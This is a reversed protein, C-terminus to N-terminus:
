VVTEPKISKAVLYMSVFATYSAIIAGEISALIWAVYINNVLYNFLLVFLTSIIAGAITLLILILLNKFYSKRNAAVLKAAKKWAFFTLIKGENAFLWMFANGWACLLIILIISFLGVGIPGAFAFLVGLLTLAITILITAIIFKFGKVFSTWINMFPLIYNQNQGTIAKICTLYYGTLIWNFLTGIFPLIIFIPNTVPTVKPGQSLGVTNLNSIEPTAM